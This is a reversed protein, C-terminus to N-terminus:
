KLDVQESYLMTLENCTSQRVDEICGYQSYHTENFRREDPFAGQNWGVFCTEDPMQFGWGAVTDLDTGHNEPYQILFVRVRATNM